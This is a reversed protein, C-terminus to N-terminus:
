LFIVKLYIFVFNYEHIGKYTLYTDLINLQM